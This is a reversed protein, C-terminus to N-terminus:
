KKKGIYNDLRLKLLKFAVPTVDRGSPNTVTTLAQDLQDSTFGMKAAAQVYQAYDAQVASMITVGPHILDVDAYTKDNSKYVKNVRYYVNRGFIIGKEQSHSSTIATTPIAPTGAQARIKLVCGGSGFSDSTAQKTSTEQFYHPHFAFGPKMSDVLKQAYSGSLGRWVVLDKNTRGKALANDMSQVHKNFDAGSTALALAASNTGGSTSKYNSVADKEAQTYTRGPLLDVHDKPDGGTGEPDPYPAQTSTPAVTTNVPFTKSQTLAKDLADKGTGETSGTANSGVGAPYHTFTGPGNTGVYVAQGSTSKYLPNGTNVGLKQFEFGNKTLTDHMEQSIKGQAATPIPNPPPTNSKTYAQGGPTFGFQKSVDDPSIKGGTAVNEYMGNKPNYDFGYGSGPHVFSSPLGNPPKQETVSSKSPLDQDHGGQPGKYWSPQAPETVSAPKQALQQVYQKVGGNKGVQGQGVVKGNPDTHTFTNQPKDTTTKIVGHKEHVLLKMGAEDTNVKKWGNKSLVADTTPAAPKSGGSSAPAFEGGEPSGAPEHNENYAAIRRHLNLLVRQPGVLPLRLKVSM